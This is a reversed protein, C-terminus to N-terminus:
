LHKPCGLFPAPCAFRRGWSVHMNLLRAFIAPHCALLRISSDSLLLLLNAMLAPRRMLIRHEREYSNLDGTHIAEALALSQHFALSLGDGTVADVSGSADGLLAIRGNVVRHLRRSSTVGGQEKSSIEAGRLKSRLEPFSELADMLRLRSSQSLVVVGVECESVPTVYVQCGDGWHVEVFDTWPAIRYHQRFGFRFRPRTGAELHSLRRVRSLQGDAGVIWRAPPLHSAIDISTGWKIRVGLEQARNVLAQHLHTRRIGLGYGSSFAAQVQVGHGLFRIGRFAFADHDCLRVGLRHLIDVGSPLIGEGCAKDIPPHSADSVCVDFGRLRLTIAAALGAPGAGIVLINHGSRAAQFPSQPGSPGGWSFM